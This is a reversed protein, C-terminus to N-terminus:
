AVAPAASMSHKRSGVYNQTVQEALYHIYGQIAQSECRSHQLIETKLTYVENRLDDAQSRLLKNEASLDKERQELDGAQRKSKKRSKAAAMRNKTRKKKVLLNKGPDVLAIPSEPPVPSM